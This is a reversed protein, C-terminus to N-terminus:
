GRVASASLVPAVIHPRRTAYARYIFTLMLDVAKRAVSQLLRGYRDNLLKPEFIAIDQFHASKLVYTMSLETFGVEHTFDAYRFNLGIFPNAMNPVELVLVGGPSLARHLAQLMIPIEPKPIHELVHFMFICDFQGAHADLFAVTDEVVLTGNPLFANCFDAVEQSLDIGQVCTYGRDVALLELLEGYGPGIELIRAARNQPILHSYNLLLYEKKRKRFQHPDTVHSLHKTLYGDFLTNRDSM